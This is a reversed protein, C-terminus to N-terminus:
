KAEVPKKEAAVKALIEDTHKISAALQAAESAALSGIFVSFNAVDSSENVIRDWNMPGKIPAMLEVGLEGAEALLRKFAFDYTIQRWGGKKHMNDIFKRRMSLTFHKVAVNYSALENAAPSTCEFDTRPSSCVGCEPGVHLITVPHVGECGMAAHCDACVRM